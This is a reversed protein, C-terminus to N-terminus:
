RARPPQIRPRCKVAAVGIRDHGTIDRHELGFDLRHQFRQARLSQADDGNLAAVGM